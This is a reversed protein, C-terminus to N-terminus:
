AENWCCACWRDKEALDLGRIFDAGSRAFVTAPVGSISTFRDPYSHDNNIVVGASKLVPTSIGTVDITSSTDLSFKGPFAGSFVKVSRKAERKLDANFIEILSIVSQTKAKLEEKARAEVLGSVFHGSGWVFAGFVVAILIFFIISLRTGLRLSGFGRITMKSKM